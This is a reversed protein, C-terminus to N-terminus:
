PGELLSQIERDIEDPEAGDRLLIERVAEKFVDKAIQNMRAARSPAVEYEQCFSAYPLGQYTHRLFVAWHAEMAKERCREGALQLARRVLEVKFARDMDAEPSREGAKGPHDPLDPDIEVAKGDRSRGRCTEFLFHKFGTVLWHRLRKEGSKWGSLYDARSLRDAFFGRVLDDPDGLRRFTSGLFYVKLPRAYVGMIHRNLEVLGGQGELLKREIWTHPTDPFADPPSV